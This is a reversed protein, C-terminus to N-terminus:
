LATGNASATHIATEHTLSVGGLESSEPTYVGDKRLGSLGWLSRRTM